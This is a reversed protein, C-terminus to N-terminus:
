LLLTTNEYMELLFLTKQIFGTVPSSYYTVL